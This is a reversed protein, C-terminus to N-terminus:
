YVIIVLYFRPLCLVKKFCGFKLGTIVSSGSKTRMAGFALIFIMFLPDVSVLVSEVTSNEAFGVSLLSPSEVM